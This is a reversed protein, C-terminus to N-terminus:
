RTSKRDAGQETLLSVIVGNMEGTKVLKVLREFEENYPTGVPSAKIAVTVVGLVKCLRLCQIFKQFYKPDDSPVNFLFAVPSIQRSPLCLRCVAQFDQVLWEPRLENTAYGVVIESANFDLDALRQLSKNITVDPFCHTSAAVFLM